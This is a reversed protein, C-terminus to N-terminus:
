GVRYARRMCLQSYRGYEATAGVLPEVEREVQVTVVVALSPEGFQKDYRVPMPHPQM